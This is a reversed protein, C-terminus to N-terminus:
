KLLNDKAIYFIQVLIALFLLLLGLKRGIDLEFDGVRGREEGRREGELCRFQFRKGGVNYVIRLNKKEKPM